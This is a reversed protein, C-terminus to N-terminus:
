HLARYAPFWCLWALMAYGMFGLLIPTMDLGIDLLGGMIPPAASTGLILTATLTAKIAGLHRTGYIRAILPGGAVSALGDSIGILAMGAIAAPYGAGTGLIALALAYFLPFIFLLPPEGYEDLIYGGLINASIIMATMVPFTTAYTMADMGLHAAVQHQYFLIATNFTGPIIMVACIVYFRWDKLVQIRQWHLPAPSEEDGAEAQIEEEAQVRALWPAHRDREHNALLMVFLPILGIM